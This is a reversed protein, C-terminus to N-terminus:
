LYILHHLAVSVAVVVAFVVVVVVIRHPMLLRPCQPFLNVKLHQAVTVLVRIMKTTQGVTGDHERDTQRDTHGESHQTNLARGKNISCKIASKCNRTETEQWILWLFCTPAGHCRAGIVNRLRIFLALMMQVEKMIARTIQWVFLCCCLALRYPLLPPAGEGKEMAAPTVTSQAVHLQRARGHNEMMIMASTNVNKSCCGMDRIGSVFVIRQPLLLLLLLSRLLLHLLHSTRWHSAALSM